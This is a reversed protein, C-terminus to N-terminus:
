DVSISDDGKKNFFHDRIFKAVSQETNRGIVEDAFDKVEPYSNEVAVAIDAVQMMPIDNLNDGFVVVEDFKWESKMTEVAAAKSVGEGFVEIFGTNEHLIDNYYSVPYGIAEELVPKVEMFHDRNGVAFILLTHDLAFEDPLEGLHFIKLGMDRRIRYFEEEVDNLNRSHFAHLRNDSKWTYVFPNIGNNAFVELSKEVTKRRLFHMHSYQGSKLDYFAAGTMVIAPMTLDIGDLLGTVTAPTRATAVTIAAGDGSLDNLITRSEEDIVSVDNLLTGDLDSVYLTKKM